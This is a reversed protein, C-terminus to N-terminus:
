NGMIKPFQKGIKHGSPSLVGGFSRLYHKPMSTEVIYVWEYYNSFNKLGGTLLRINPAIIRYKKHM